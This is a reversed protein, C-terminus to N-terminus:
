SDGQLATRAEAATRNCYDAIENADSRRMARMFPVLGALKDLTVFLKRELDSAREHMRANDRALDPAAQRDLEDLTDKAAIVACELCRIAGKDCGTKEKNCVFCIISYRGPAYGNFPWATTGELLKVPDSPATPRPPAATM